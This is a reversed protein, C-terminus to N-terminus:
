IVYGYKVEGKNENFQYLNEIINEKELMIHQLEIKHAEGVKSFSNIYIKLESLIKSLWLPISHQVKVELIAGGNELLSTGKMSSHLNLDKVRYRPNEDITIRVDSNDQYYATRDYIILYKAELNPHSEKFSVLERSIQEKDFEGDKFLYNNVEEETTCIRRKYVIGDLKRKIELFVPSDNSALGYSRLRIKEKFRPKEISKNILSFKPEDFYLSAITTLGYKDVKMFELIRSKFLSLQESTLVFKLEFRKMVSIIEKNKM